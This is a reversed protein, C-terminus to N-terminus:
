RGAQSPGGLAQALAGATGSFLAFFSRSSCSKFRRPCLGISKSDIAKVARGFLRPIDYANCKQQVTGPCQVFVYETYTEYEQIELIRLMCYKRGSSHKATDIKNKNGTGQLTPVVSWPFTESGFSLFDFVDFISGFPALYFRQMSSESFGPHIFDSHWKM